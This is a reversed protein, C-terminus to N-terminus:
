KKKGERLILEQLLAESSFESLATDDGEVRESSVVPRQYKEFYGIKMAEAARQCREPTQKYWLSHRQTKPNAYIMELSAAAFDGAKVNKIFNKFKGISGIQFMMSLIIARRTEGLAELESASFVASVDEIADLVDLDFLADCEEETISLQSPDDYEGLIAIEADEQTIELNHGIGIHWVGKVLHANLNKGEEDILLQRLLTNDM